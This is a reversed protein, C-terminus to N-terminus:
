LFFHHWRLRFGEDFLARAFLWFVVTNAASLAILLAHWGSMDTSVGLSYSATHAASGLAFAIALRGALVKGYESFLSAALVLLVAFTGARLALELSSLLM